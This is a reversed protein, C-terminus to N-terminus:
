RRTKNIIKRIKKEFIITKAIQEPTLYAKLSESFEQKLNFINKDIQSIRELKQQIDDADTNLEIEKMIYQRERLLTNIEKHNKRFDSFFKDTTQEDTRVYEIFKKRISERILKGAKTNQTDIQANAQLSCLMFLTGLIFIINKM